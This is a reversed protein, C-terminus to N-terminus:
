FDTRLQFNWMVYGLFNLVVIIIIKSLTLDIIDISESTLTYVVTSKSPIFLKRLICLFMRTNTNNIVIRFHMEISINVRCNIAIEM